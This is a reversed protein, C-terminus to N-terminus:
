EVVSVDSVFMVQSFTRNLSKSVFNDMTVNELYNVVNGKKAQVKIGAIWMKKDNSEIHMYSFDDANIVEIIKGRKDATKVTEANNNSATPQSVGMAKMTAANIGPSLRFPHDTETAPEAYVSTLALSLALAAVSLRYFKIM